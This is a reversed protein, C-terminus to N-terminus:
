RQKGCLYYKEYPHPCQKQLSRIGAEFAKMTNKHASEETRMQLLIFNISERVEKIRQQMATENAEIIPVAATTWDTTTPMM